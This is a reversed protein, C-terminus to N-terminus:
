CLMKNKRRRPKIKLPPLQDLYSRSPGEPLEWEEEKQQNPEPLEWVEEKQQNHEPLEWVEENQQNPEPFTQTGVKNWNTTSAGARAAPNNALCRIKHYPLRKLLVRHSSDYPCSVM